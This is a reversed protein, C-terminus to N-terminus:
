LSATPYARLHLTEDIWQLMLVDDNVAALHSVGEHPLEDRPVGVPEQPETLPQQTDIDRCAIRMLPRRANSVLVYRDRDREYAVMDIPSNGWGLEAVTRGRAQEGSRLEDLSLHVVPTCTYAALVDNGGYPLFARLPSHTEWKGHSVHYIELSSAQADGNFPFPIRRLTSAFEENSAGAVLLVGDVYALDTVTQTRLPQRRLRIRVGAHELEQDPTEGPNVFRVHEADGDAPADPISTRAFAVGELEVAELAGGDGVRIIVPIGADGAGRMVSLYVAQSLPHVAMDRVSVDATSCGLYSALRADLNEVGGVAVPEGDDGPDLAFIAAAANDAIFLIGDPGFAIPGVSRLEVVGNELGYQTRDLEVSM